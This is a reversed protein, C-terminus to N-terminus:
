EDRDLTKGQPGYTRGSELSLIAEKAVVKFVEWLPKLYEFGPPLSFFDM